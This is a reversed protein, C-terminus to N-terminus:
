SLAALKALCMTNGGIQHPTAAAIAGTNNAASPWFPNM